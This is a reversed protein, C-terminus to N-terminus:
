EIIRGMAECVAASCDYDPTIVAPGSSGDANVCARGPVLLYGTHGCNQISVPRLYIWVAIPLSKLEGETEPCNQQIEFQAMPPEVDLSM